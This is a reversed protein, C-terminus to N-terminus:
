DIRAGVDEEDRRSHSLSSGVVNRRSTEKMVKQDPAERVRKKKKKM